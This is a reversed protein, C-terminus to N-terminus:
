VKEQCGELQAYVKGIRAHEHSLNITFEKDDLVVGWVARIPFEWVGRSVFFFKKFWYKIHSFRQERHGVRFKSRFMFSCVNGERGQIQHTYLFETAILDLYEKDEVGLVMRWIICCSM